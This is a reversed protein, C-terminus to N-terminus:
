IAEEAPTDFRRNETEIIPTAEIVVPEPEPGRLSPVNITVHVGGGKGAEGFLPKNLDRSLRERYNAQAICKALDGHKPDPDAGDLIEMGEMRLDVGALAAARMAKASLDANGAIWSILKRYPVDLGAAIEALTEGGALRQVLMEGTESQAILDSFRQARSLNM